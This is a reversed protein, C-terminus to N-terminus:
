AAPPQWPRLAALSAEAARYTRTAVQPYRGIPGVIHVHTDWRM